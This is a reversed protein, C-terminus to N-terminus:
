AVMRPVDWVSSPPEGALRLHHHVAMWIAACDDPRATSAAVYALHAEGAMAQMRQHTAADPAIGLLTPTVPLGECAAVMRAMFADDFKPTGCFLMVFHPWDPLFARRLGHALGNRAVAIM